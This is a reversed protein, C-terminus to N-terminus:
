WRFRKIAATSIAEKESKGRDLPTFHINKPALPDYNTIFRWLVSYKEWCTAESMNNFVFIFGGYYVNAEIYKVGSTLYLSVQRNYLKPQLPTGGIGEVQRCYLSANEDDPFSVIIRGRSNLKVKYTV